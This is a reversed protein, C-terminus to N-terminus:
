SPRWAFIGDRSLELGFKQRWLVEDIMWFDFRFNVFLELETLLLSLLGRLEDLLAQGFQLFAPEYIQYSVLHSLVRNLDSLLFLFQLVEYGSLQPAASPSPPALAPHRELM